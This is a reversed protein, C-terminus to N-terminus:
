RAHWRVPAVTQDDGNFPTATVKSVKGEFSKAVAAPFADGEQDSKRAVQVVPKGLTRPLGPSTSLAATWERAINLGSPEYSQASLGTTSVLAILIAGLVVIAGRTSRVRNRM